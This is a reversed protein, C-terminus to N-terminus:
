RATYVLRESEESAVDFSYGDYVNIDEFGASMLADIVEDKTYAKQTHNEDFRRYAGSEDQVFFTLYFHATHESEDYENEWVYYVKDNDFTFTNDAIIESLKYHSNMDFIFPAGPNLYNKVLKFVAALDDYDTIYNLSDTMCLVADVTGYLEFERMDQCLYLIDPNKEKAVSLMDYSIDAGIMDYGRKAFIDTLTGTGCALDLMLQPKKGMKDFCKQVFDAISGYDIDECMLEDYIKAFDIYCQM